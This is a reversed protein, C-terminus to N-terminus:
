GGSHKVLCLVIIGFEGVDVLTPDEGLAPCDIANVSSLISYLFITGFIFCNM